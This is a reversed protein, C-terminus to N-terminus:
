KQFRRTKAQSSRQGRSTGGITDRNQYGRPKPNLPPTPDELRNDLRAQQSQATPGTQVVPLHNWQYIQGNTFTKARVPSVESMTLDTAPNWQHDALLGFLKPAEGRTFEIEKTIGRRYFKMWACKGRISYSLVIMGNPLTFSRSWVKRSSPTYVEYETINGNLAHQLKNRVKATFGRAREKMGDSAHRDTQQGQVTSFFSACNHNSCQSYFGRANWTRPLDIDASCESKTCASFQLVIAFSILVARHRATVSADQYSPRLPPSDQQFFAEVSQVTFRYWNYIRGITFAYWHYIKTLMLQAYGEWQSHLFYAFSRFWDPLSSFVFLAM